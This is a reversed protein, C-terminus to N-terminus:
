FETVGAILPHDVVSGISSPCSQKCLLPMFIINNEHLIVPVIDSQMRENGNFVVVCEEKKETKQQPQQVEGGIIV